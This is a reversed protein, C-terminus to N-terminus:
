EYERAERSTIFFHIGRSCEVLPDPDYDSCLVPEGVRYVFEEAYKSQGDKHETGDLGVISLVMAGDCRCKRGVIPSVRECNAGIALKAVRGDRLKKWGIFAGEEPCVQTHPLCAGSLCAGSLGAETLDAGTLDARTLYAGTLYARTLDAGTLYAGTLDAGTLDAGTLDAGMLDARMLDARSGGDGRVWKLHDVLIANLEDKTM